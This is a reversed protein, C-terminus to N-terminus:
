LEQKQIEQASYIDVIAAVFGTPHVYISQDLSGDLTDIHDYRNQFSEYVDVIGL